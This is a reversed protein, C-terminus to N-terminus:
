AIINITINLNIEYGYGMNIGLLVRSKSFERKGNLERGAFIPKIIFLVSVLFKADTFHLFFMYNNGRQHFIGTALTSMVM